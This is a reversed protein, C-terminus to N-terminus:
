EWLSPWVNMPLGLGHVFSAVSFIALVVFVITAEKVKFEHGGWASVYVLAGIAIVLGLPKLLYGFIVVAFLIVWLSREGFTAFLLLIAVGSLITHAAEGALGLGHFWAQTYYAIVGLILGALFFWARFPFVKWPHAQRSVFGNFLIFGGLIALMGGLVTPFYAPGMRVATGMNYNQAVIMFALGFGAFMLGAWFDKGNAIKM